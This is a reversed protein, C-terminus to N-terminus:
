LDSSMADLIPALDRELGLGEPVAHPHLGSTDSHGEFNESLGMLGNLGLLTGLSLGLPGGDSSGAFVLRDPLAYAYTLTAPLENGMGALGDLAQKAEDPMAEGDAEAMKEAKDAVIEGLPGAVSALDQYMLASLNMEVDPPLLADFAPATRLNVGSDRYQVARDLMGSISSAILYGDAYRYFVLPEGDASTEGADVKAISYITEGKREETQLEIRFALAEQASLAIDAENRHENLSENLRALIEEISTQFTAPDYVELVAKWAPEPLLPGDMAFAFEGGLPAALSEGIDLGLEAQMEEFDALAEPSDQSLDTLLEEFIQAPERIVFAAAVHPDPAIFDLAGMPAPEALWSSVGERPGDFSLDARADIHGDREVQEVILYRAANLGLTRHEVSEADDATEDFPEAEMLRGLDIAFLWDVGDVYAEAIRQHFESGAFARNSNARALASPKPAISFRDGELLVYLADDGLGEHTHLEDLDEEAESELNEATDMAAAPLLAEQTAILEDLEQASDILHMPVEEGIEDGLSALETELQARFADMDAVHGHVFPESPEGEEDLAMAIIIEEGIHEGLRTVRDIISEISTETDSSAVRADWWQRLVENQDIRSQLLDNAEGLTQSLNPVSIFFATDAPLDDILDSGYRPEPRPLANIDRGLAILEQALLAMHEDSHISWDIEEALSIEGLDPDTAVQDGPLLTTEDQGQKVRVEGEYVAVRSGRTGHKVSFVTGTVSVLCEDTNVFLNGSGQESAEVIVHGRAVQIVTDGRREALSIESRPAIEVRSGDDLTIVGGARSATRLSRGKQISDGVALESSQGADIAYLKGEADAVEAMTKNPMLLGENWGFFGAAGVLLVMCAAVALRM